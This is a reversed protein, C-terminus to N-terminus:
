DKPFSLGSKMLTQVLDDPVQTHVKLRDGDSSVGTDDIVKAADPNTQALQYRKFLLGAQLIQALTQADAPSGCVPTVQADLGSDMQMTATMGKVRALLDSAGPFQAAEPVLREISTHASDKDLAVWLTGQGNVENVLPWLTENQLFSEEEGFRVGILAELVERHGFAITNTDLFFFFLDGPSIGSGFAYLSYGRVTAIPLHQKKAAQDVRDPTFSGLAIGVVEQGTYRQTGGNDAGTAGGPAVAPKALSTAAWAVEEIQEDPDVGTSRLFDRFRQFRSPLILSEFQGFWAAQRATKLNAYGIEGMNKPFMGLVSTSLSGGRASFTLALVFCALTAARNLFPLTGGRRM